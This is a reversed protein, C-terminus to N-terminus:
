LCHTFVYMSLTKGDKGAKLGTQKVEREKNKKKKM